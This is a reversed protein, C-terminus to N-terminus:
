QKGTKTMWEAHCALFHSQTHVHQLKPHHFQGFRVRDALELQLLPATLWEMKGRKVGRECTRVHVMGFRDMASDTIPNAVLLAKAYGSKEHKRLRHFWRLRARSETSDNEFGGVGFFDVHLTNNSSIGCM